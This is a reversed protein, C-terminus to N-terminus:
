TIITVSIGKPVLPVDEVHLCEVQAIIHTIKIKPDPDYEVQGISQSAKQEDAM